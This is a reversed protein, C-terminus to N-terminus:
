MKALVVDLPVHPAPLVSPHGAWIQVDDGTRGDPGEAILDVLVQAVRDPDLLGSVPPNGGLFNRYMPTDTAGMGFSNVRIGSGRLARAWALTLGDLGYKSADYTDLRPGGGPARPTGIWACSQALEHDVHEPYGCTRKHDTTVNVIDARGAELLYPMCAMAMSYPGRLNTGIVRDFADLAAQWPDHGPHTLELVAANNVLLDIGGLTTDARRVFDQVAADDTVDVVAALPVASPGLHDLTSEVAPDRDCVAVTAGASVLARAIAAGLGVAAGTVVARRGTLVSGQAQDNM